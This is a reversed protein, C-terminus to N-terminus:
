TIVRDAETLGPLTELRLSFRGRARLFAQL